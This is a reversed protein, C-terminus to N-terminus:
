AGPKRPRAVICFVVFAPVSVFWLICLATLAAAELAHQRFGDIEVHLDLQKAKMLGYALLFTGASGPWFIHPDLVSM